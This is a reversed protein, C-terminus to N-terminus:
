SRLSPPLPPTYIRGLHVLPNERTVLRCHPRVDDVAPNERLRCKQKVSRLRLRICYHSLSQLRGSRPEWSYISLHERELHKDLRKRTVDKGSERCGDGMSCLCLKRRLSMFSLKLKEPHDRSKLGKSPIKTCAERTEHRNYTWLNKNKSINSKSKLKKKVARTVTVRNTLTYIKRM